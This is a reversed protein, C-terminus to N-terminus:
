TTNWPMSISSNIKGSVWQLVNPRNWQKTIVFPAAIFM